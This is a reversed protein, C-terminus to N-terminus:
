DLAAEIRFTTWTSSVAGHNHPAAFRRHYEALTQRLRSLTTGRPTAGGTHHLFRLLDIASEFARTQTRAQSRLITWGARRFLAEWEDPSRWRVPSPAPTISQWEPLTPAVYFGHLMTGGPKIARRWRELIAAPDSCWHLLSASALCDAPAVNLTWADAVRWEARPLKTRGLEVMLPAADIAILRAYRSVLHRTFLGDGAGVEIASRTAAQSAPPLWEALWDALDRQVVAHHAYSAARRNYASHAFQIEEGDRIPASAEDPLDCSIIISSRARHITMNTM